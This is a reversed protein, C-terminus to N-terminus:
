EGLHPEQAMRLPVAYWTWGVIVASLVTGIIAGVLGYILDGILFVACLLGAALCATGALFLLHGVRIVDGKGGTNWRMRHVVSPAMLFLVGSATVLTCAYLVARDLSGLKGFRTALPATLLFGLLVQAGPLAVRLENLLEILQRDTQEKASEPM